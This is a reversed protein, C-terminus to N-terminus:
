RPIGIFVVAAVPADDLQGRKRGVQFEVDDAVLLGQQNGLREIRQQVAFDIALEQRHEISPALLFLNGGGELGSM